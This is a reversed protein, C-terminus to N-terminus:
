DQKYVTQKVIMRSCWERTEIQNIKRATQEWLKAISIQFQAYICAHRQSFKVRSTYADQNHLNLFTQLRWTLENFKGM